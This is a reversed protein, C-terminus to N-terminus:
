SDCCQQAEILCLVAINFAKQHEMPAAASHSLAPSVKRVGRASLGLGLGLM